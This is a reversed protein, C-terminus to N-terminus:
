RFDVMYNWQGSKVSRVDTAGPAVLYQQYVEEVTESATPEYNYYLKDNEIYQWVWVLEGSDDKSTSTTSTTTKGRGRPRRKSSVVEEESSDEKKGRKTRKAPKEKATQSRTRKKSKKESEKKKSERKKKPEKKSSEKKKKTEKKKSERKKKPKKVEESEDVRRAKKKKTAKKTKTNKPSKKEALVSKKAKKKPKTLIRYSLKSQALEKKDVGRKLALRVRSRFNGHVPYNAEIYRVIAIYSAGKRPKQTEKIAKRIMASYLLVPKKNGVQSSKTKKKPSPVAIIAKRAVPETFRNLGKNKLKRVHVERPAYTTKALKPKRPM